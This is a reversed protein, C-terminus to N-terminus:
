EGNILKQYVAREENKNQEALAELLIEQAKADKVDIELVERAYREADAWMKNKQFFEALKSRSINDDPDGECVSKLVDMLKAEEKLVVYVQALGVLWGTEFPELARGKELTKAADAFNKAKLQIRSLLKLAKADEGNEAVAAGIVTAALEPRNDALLCAAKVYAALPHNAKLALADNALDLAIKNDGQQYHKDALAAIIDPDNPNKAREEKLQKLSKEAPVPPLKLNKVRDELFARYGKEFDAKKVNIAKALAAETDLGSAFANLLKGIAPEGHTKTIYQVYLESQMYAQHWQDQSRPRVFGLLITDLTLLDNERLKDALLYNWRPPPTKGELTVALGETLWHPVQFRTQDLNFLHVAEHRLVRNWNFPKTIRRTTDHTSVMAFMRGTCAGITHLDPLSTVRGSFMEHKNFIEILYPEKPQFDFKKELEDHLKELYHVIFRGLIADNKADFKVIYHPTKITQYKGLHDLVKLSNSVRVNFPDADFADELAKRASAENGLRMLLMGYNEHSEPMEPQLDMAKKYYKGSDFFLKRSDLHGGLEVNFRWAKPNFSEVEALVADFEKTKRQAHYVAAIQALTVEDRPNVKRATQLLKMAADNEGAFLHVAAKVRLAAPLNPNIELAQNALSEADKMEFQSYATEARSAFVDAARPNILLAAEFQKHAEAKNHKETYVKGKEYPAQWYNKVAAAEVYLDTMVTEYEDALHLYRARELSAKGIIMLEDPDTIKMDNDERKVFYRVFWRFEDVAKAWDGQDRIIQAKVWRALLHDPSKKLAKDASAVAEDWRGRTYLLDARRAQVDANDAELKLAPDLASLAEDYKGQAELAQSLGLSASMVAGPNKLLETYTEEALAYNGRQLEAYAQKLSQGHAAPAILLLVLLASRM